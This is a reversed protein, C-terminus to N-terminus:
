SPLAPMIADFADLIRQVRPLARHRTSARMVVETVVVDRLVPVVETRGPPEPIGGDPLLAIGHGLSAMWRLLDIDASRVEPHVVVPGDATPLHPHPWAPAQYLLLPHSKLSAIDAPTGNRELYDASAVLGLPIRRIVRSYWHPSTPPDGIHVVLDTEVTAAALPDEAHRAQLPTGELLERAAHLVQATMMPEGGQFYVVKLEGLHGDAHQELEHRVDKAAALITRLYPLARRGAETLEVGSNSRSLLPAGLHAELADIKDRNVAALAENLRGGLGTTDLYAKYADTTLTFGPSVPIGDGTMQSLGLAKGGVRKTDRSDPDTFSLTYM